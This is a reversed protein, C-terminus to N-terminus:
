LNQNSFFRFIFSNILIVCCLPFEKIEAEIEVGELPIDYGKLVGVTNPVWINYLDTRYLEGNIEIACNFRKDFEHVGLFKIRTKM